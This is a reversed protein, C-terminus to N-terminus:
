LLILPVAHAFRSLARPAFDGDKRVAPDVDETHGQGQQFDEGGQRSAVAAPLGQEGLEAGRRGGNDFLLIRTLSRGWGTGSFGAAVRGAARGVGEVGGAVGGVSYVGACRSNSTSM